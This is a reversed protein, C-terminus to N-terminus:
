LLVGVYTTRPYKKVLDMWQVMISDAIRLKYLINGTMSLKQVRCVSEVFIIKTKVICCGRLFYTALCVPLCTGPGNVLLLSPKLRYILQLSVFFAYITMWIATIYSQGVERSRPITYFVTDSPVISTSKARKESTTDTNACIYSRDTYRDLPLASLLGLM